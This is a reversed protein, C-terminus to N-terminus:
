KKLIKTTKGNVNLLYVGSSLGELSIAYGDGRQEANVPIAMGNIGYLGISSKSKVNNIIIYLGEQRCDTPFLLDKIGTDLVDYTFRRVEGIGYDLVYESTTIHISNDLIAIVPEEKLDIVNVISNDKNWIKLSQGAVPQLGLAGLILGAYFGIKKMVEKKLNIAVLNDAVFTLSEGSDRLLPKGSNKLGGRSNPSLCIM